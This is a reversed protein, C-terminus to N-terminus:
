FKESIPFLVNEIMYLRRGELNQSHFENLITLAFENIREVAKEFERETLAFKLSRFRRLNYDLTMAEKSRDLWHNHFLQLSKLHPQNKIKVADTAIKYEEDVLSILKNEKLQNMLIQVRSLELNLFLAINKDTAKFDKFTLLTLVIPGFVDETVSEAEFEQQQYQSKQMKMLKAGSASREAESRPQSYSLLYDFYQIEDGKLKLNSRIVLASRASIKRRRQLIFRLITKSGINLESSWATYSFKPDIQKRWKYHEQLYQIVDLFEFINPRLIVTM